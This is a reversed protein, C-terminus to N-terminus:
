GFPVRKFRYVELNAASLPELPNKVWLFKTFDRDAELLDVQLFAKEVDTLIPYKAARFRMLLGVLEPLLVPGRYLCQNLSSAGKAHASADYVIRVKKPTIVPHHPLFHEKGNTRLAPEIIGLELQERFIADYEMLALKPTGQLRQLVSSLRKHTMIYNSALEPRNEIWPWGVAYRGDPSRSVTAEFRKVAEADENITPDDKIGILELSWFDKTPEDLPQTRAAATISLQHHPSPDM